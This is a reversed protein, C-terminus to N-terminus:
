KLANAIREARDRHKRYVLAGALAALLHSLVLLVFIKM